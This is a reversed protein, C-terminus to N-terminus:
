PAVPLARAWDKAFVRLIRALSPGRIVIGVERNRDLSTTSLNESGLYAERADVSVLKAHVYPDRLRRVLVGGRVLATAAQPSANPPLLLRVQVHRQASAVLLQELGADAFEEAYIDIGSHAHHILSALKRRANDPSILLNLDSLVAPARDWDSRFLASLERVDGSDGDFVLLDRNQTFASRSFNASSVVALRDDLVMFKAHTLRFGPRTWRVAVEAARLMGAVRAPQTGLGLPGPELMVYVAVGETEARELARVIRGDSLIYAEVFIHDQARNIDRLLPRIGDDPEILLSLPLVGAGLAVDARM